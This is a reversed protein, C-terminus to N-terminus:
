CLNDVVKRYEKEIQRAYVCIACYEKYYQYNEELRDIESIVQIEGCSDDDEKTYLISVMLVSKIFLIREFSTNWEKTEQRFPRRIENLEKQFRKKLKDVFIKKIGKEVIQFSWGTLDIIGSYNRTSDFNEILVLFEESWLQFITQTDILNEKELKCLVEETFKKEISQYYSYLIQNFANKLREKSYNEILTISIASLINSELVSDIHVNRFRHNLLCVIFTDLLEDASLNKTLMEKYLEFPQKSSEKLIDSIVVATVVAKLYPINSCLLKEKIDNLNDRWLLYELLQAFLITSLKSLPNDKLDKNKNENYQNQIFKILEIYETFNITLLLDCGYYVGWNGYGFTESMYDSLQLIEEVINKFNDVFLFHFDYERHYGKKSFGFPSTASISAELHKRLEIAFTPNDVTSLVSIIEDNHNTNALFYGFTTWFKPFSKQSLAESILDSIVDKSVNELTIDKKLRDFLGQNIVKNIDTDSELKVKNDKYNHLTIIEVASNTGETKNILDNIHNDVKPLVDQPIPTILLPQKKTAGQISNSLHFGKQLVNEEFILIYRDHLLNTDGGGISRMDYISLILSDCLSPNSSIFSKIRTARNPESKKIIKEQDDDTSTTQTCTLVIFNTGANTTRVLFELGLTDYFPDQIVVKQANKTQNKFWELFSISGHQMTEVSWGQPFFEADSKKPSILDIYKAFDRDIEVWPDLGYGGITMPKQYSTKSIKELEVVKEKTKNNSKEIASLWPSQVTGQLGVIGMNFGFQRILSVAYKYWIQFIDNEEKWISIAIRGIQEKSEFTTTLVQEDEHYVKKCEDLVVQGGNEFFCNILLNKSCTHANPTISITIKKCCHEKKYDITVEEKITEFDVYAVEFENACQTNIFEINGLRACGSTLFPLTTEKQLYKLLSLLAFNDTGSEASVVGMKDLNCVTLTFSPANKYPSILANKEYPNRSILRNTDNFIVPRISFSKTYFVDFELKSTKLKNNADKLSQGLLLGNILDIIVSPYNYISIKAVSYVVNASTYVKAFDNCSIEDCVEKRTTNVCWAYAIKYEKQKNAKNEIKLVFFQLLLKTKNSFLPFLRSDNTIKETIIHRKVTKRKKNM